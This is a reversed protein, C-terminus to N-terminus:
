AFTDLGRIRFSVKESLNAQIFGQIRNLLNSINILLM